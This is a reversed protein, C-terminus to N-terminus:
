RGQLEGSVGPNGAIPKGHLEQLKPKYEYSDMQSVVGQMFLFICHKAKRIRHLTPPQLPDALPWTAGLLDDALIGGLGLAGIGNWTKHLFDRHFKLIVNASM